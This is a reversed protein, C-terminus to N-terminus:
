LFDDGLNSSPYPHVCLGFFAPLLLTNDRRSSVDTKTTAAQDRLQATQCNLLFYLQSPSACAGLAHSYGLWAAHLTHAIRSRDQHLVASYLM